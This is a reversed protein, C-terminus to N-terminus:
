ARLFTVLRSFNKAFVSFPPPSTLMLKSIELLVHYLVSETEIKEESDEKMVDRIRRVYWRSLDETVFYEIDRAAGVIDYSDM